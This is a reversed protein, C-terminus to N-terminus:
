PLPYSANRGLAVSAPRGFSTRITPFCQSDPSTRTASAMTGLSTSTPSTRAVGTVGQFEFCGVDVIGNVVRINGDLDLQSSVLTNSGHDICPSDPLLHLDGEPLHAFRPDDGFNGEGGFEGTWRQVCSYDISLINSPNIFLQATEGQGSMDSNGWFICNGADTSVGVYDYIAGGRSASM